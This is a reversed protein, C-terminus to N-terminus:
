KKELIIYDNLENYKQYNSLVYSNVLEIREYIKLGDFKHDGSFYLTYKPQAKKIENQSLGRNFIAFDDTDVNYYRNMNLPEEVGM